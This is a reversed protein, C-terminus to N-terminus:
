AHEAEEGTGVLGPTERNGPDSRVSLADDAATVVLCCM